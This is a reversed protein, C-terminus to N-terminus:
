EAEKAYFRAYLTLPELATEGSLLVKGNADPQFVAEYKGGNIKCWVLQKGEPAEVTPVTLNKANANVMQTFFTKGDNVFDLRVTTQQEQMDLNLMNIVMWNYSQTEENFQKEVLFTSDLPYEKVTGDKRTVFLTMSVRASYLNENYRYYSTINAEGFNYGTYSQMWKDISTITAFVSKTPDFVSKLANKTAKGIMYRCYTQAANTLTRIEDDTVAHSGIEQYFLGLEKDYELAIQQGDPSTVTVTPTILLDDVRYLSTQYGHVGEPLYKEAATTVQKVIYSGDLAVGNIAVTNQSDTLISCGAERKYLLEIRALKWEKVQADPDAAELTFSAIKDEGAKIIYKHDGSLGASTEVFSLKQNGVRQKMYAAFVNADEFPTPQAKAAYYLNVWDPENAFYQDFVAQSQAKPQSAEYRLLWDKVFGLVIAIALFAIFVFALLSIYFIKAGKTMPKKKKPNNVAPTAPTAPKEAPKNFLYEENQPVNESNDFKGQYM